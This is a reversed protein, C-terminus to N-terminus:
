RFANLIGEYQFPRDCRSIEKMAECAWKNDKGTKWDKIPELGGVFWFAEHRPELDVMTENLHKVNAYLANMMVRNIDTSIKLSNQRDKEAETLDDNHEYERRNPIYLWM